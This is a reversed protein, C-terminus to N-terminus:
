WEDDATLLEFVATIDDVIVYGSLHSAKVELHIDMINFYLLDAYKKHFFM